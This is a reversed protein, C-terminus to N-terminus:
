LLDIRIVYWLGLLIYKEALTEVKRIAVKSSALRNQALYLYLDKFYSSSLYGAQIERVMVSLHMGKLVKRQIVKFIKDIDTQKPLFKQVLNQTYILSELDKPEQFYSKNSRQYVELIIGEQHSNEEFEIDIKPKTDSETEPCNPRLNYPPRPPPRYIPDPYFSQERNKGLIKKGTITETENTILQKPVPFNTNDKTVNQITPLKPSKSMAATPATVPHAMKHRMVARGRGLKPRIKVVQEAQIQVNQKELLVRTDLTKKAGHM